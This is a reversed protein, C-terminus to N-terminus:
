PFYWNTNDIADGFGPTDILTLKLRVGNEELDMTSTEIKLTSIFLM